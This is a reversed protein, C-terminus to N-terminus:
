QVAEMRVPIYLSYGQGVTREQIKSLGTLAQGLYPLALAHAMEKPFFLAGEDAMIVPNKFPKGCTALFDGHRGFRTFPTFLIDQYLAMVPVSPALSYLANARKAGIATLDVERCDCLRFRGKGTSADAGFGTIGIRELGRKLGDKGLLTPDIGIYLALKLGPAFVINSSSFPMFGEGTTGTLRNITNHSHLFGAVMDQGNLDLGAQEALEVDNLYRCSSLGEMPGEHSILLWKQKKLLKRQGIREERALGRLDFLQDLPAQPRPLAVTGASLAPFASSFVAFPQESYGAVADNLSVSLITEDYAAQWCFQGFLTDGKLPTGFPSLPEIIVLFTQV